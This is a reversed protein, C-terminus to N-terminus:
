DMQSCGTTKRVVVRFPIRAFSGLARKLRVQVTARGRNSAHAIAEVVHKLQPCFKPCAFLEARFQKKATREKRSLASMSSFICFEQGLGHASREIRLKDPRWLTGLLPALFHVLQCGLM